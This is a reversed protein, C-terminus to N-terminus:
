KNYMETTEVDQTWRLFFKESLFQSPTSCPKEIPTGRCLFTGNVNKLHEVLHDFTQFIMLFLKISMM